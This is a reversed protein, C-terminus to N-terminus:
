EIREGCTKCFTTGPKYSEGCNICYETTTAPQRPQQPAQTKKRRLVTAGLTVAIIGLIILLLNTPQTLLSTIDSQTATTETTEKTTPTEKPKEKITLTLTASHTKEGGTAEVTILYTGPQTSEYTDIKLAASFRPYGDEPQLNPTVDAPHGQVKTFAVPDNFEGIKDVTITFTATEGQQITLDLPSSLLTFDGTPQPTQTTTAATTTPTQTTTPSSPTVTITGSTQHTVGQASGIVTIPYTGPQTSPSIIIKLNGTPSLQYQMGSGLGTVQIQIVTGAYSPDSYTLLINFTGTNGAEVTISLPSLQITFDFAAGNVVTFAVMNSQLHDFEISAIVSYSGPESSPDLNLSYTGMANGDANTTVTVTRELPWGTPTSIELVINLVVGPIQPDLPDSIFQFQIIVTDGVSYVSRDTQVILQDNAGGNFSPISGVLILLVMLALVYKNM